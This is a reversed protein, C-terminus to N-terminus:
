NGASAPQLGLHQRFGDTEGQSIFAFIYDSSAAGRVITRNTGVRYPPSEARRRSQGKPGARLPTRARGTTVTKGPAAIVRPQAKQISRRRTRSTWVPKGSEPPKAKPADKMHPQQPARADKKQQEAKALEAPPSDKSHSPLTVNTLPQINANGTSELACNPESTEHLLGLVRVSLLAPNAVRRPFTPSSRRTRASLSPAFCNSSSFGPVVRPGARCRRFPRTVSRARRDIWGHPRKRRWGVAVEGSGGV